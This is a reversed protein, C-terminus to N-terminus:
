LLGSERFSFRGPPSISRDGVIIHDILPIRLLEAADRMRSTLRRDAESPACDGSPHNHALIFGHAAILICPRLIERPHAIAESLSGVSVIHYGLLRIKTNVMVVALLEKDAEFTADAAIVDFWFDRVCEPTDMATKAVHYQASASEGIRNIVVRLSLSKESM